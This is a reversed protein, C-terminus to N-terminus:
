ELWRRPPIYPRFGRFLNGPGALRNAWNCEVKAALYQSRSNGGATKGLSWSVVRTGRMFGESASDPMESHKRGTSPAPRRRARASTQSWARAAGPRCARSPPGTRIPPGRRYSRCWRWRPRRDNPFRIAEDAARGFREDADTLLDFSNGASERHSARRGPACTSGMCKVNSRVGSPPAMRPQGSASTFAHGAGARM